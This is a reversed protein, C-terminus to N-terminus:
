EKLLSLFASKRDLYFLRVIKYEDSKQEKTLNMGFM